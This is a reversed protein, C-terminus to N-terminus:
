AASGKPEAMPLRVRFTAGGNVNNEATLRGKHAAIINQSIALGMGLGTPKTTFFAAFLRTLNEETIGHGADSVAVEVEDAVLSVRVYVRRAEAPCDNMADMANLLLNLIVQQLEVHDGWVSPITSAPEWVVKMNRRETDPRVLTVVEGVLTNMNLWSGQFGRRRVLTRMRDIIASARQDDHLIDALIARIEEIDPHSNQLFLEAAEANHLIAGLPQNLEHALSSALQGMMSVRTVHVLEARQQQIEREALKRGTIDISVGLMRVPKGSKNREVQGAAALWRVTGDPLLVRYQPDYRGNGAITREIAEDRMTGDEPHVRGRMMELTVEADPAFGFLQKCQESAWVHNRPIDWVWTGLNAANAALTMRKEDERWAAETRRRWGRQVLLGAITATQALIICFGGIVYEKHHEWLPRFQIISGPPLSAESINWRRLQRWDFMPVSQHSEARSAAQPEEGALVRIGLQATKRGIAEFTVISGGVIGHGLYTEYCGYLPARSADAFQGLTQWPTFTQGASDEFMTLYLVIPRERLRSLDNSGPIEGVIFVLVVVILGATHRTKM